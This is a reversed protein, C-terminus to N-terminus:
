RSAEGVQKVLGVLAVRFEDDAKPWENALREAAAFGDESTGEQMPREVLDIPASETNEVQKARVAAAGAAILQESMAQLENTQNQDATVLVRVIDGPQIVPLAGLPVSYVRRANVFKHRTIVAHNTGMNVELYAPENNSEGHSFRAPAGIIELAGFTGGGHYHGGILKAGPFHQKLEALPWNMDRGRPM